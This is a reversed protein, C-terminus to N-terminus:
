SIYKEKRLFEGPTMAQIAFRDVGKFVKTNFTIIIGTGAAVAAELVLDDKPDKLYPRWLFFVETLQAVSCIYDLFDDKDLETFHDALPPRGLVDSYEEYLGVSLAPVLEGAAVLELIRFSTGRWSYLGAFIVNTDIVVLKM